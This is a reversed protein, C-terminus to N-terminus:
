DKRIEYKVTEYLNSFTTRRNKLFKDKDSNSTGLQFHALSNSGIDSVYPLMLNFESRWGM